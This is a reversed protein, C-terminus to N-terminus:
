QKILLKILHYPADLVHSDALQKLLWVRDVHEGKLEKHELYADVEDVTLQINEFICRRVLFSPHEDVAESLLNFKKEKIVVDQTSTYSM